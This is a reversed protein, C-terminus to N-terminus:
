LEQNPNRRQALRENASTALEAALATVHIAHTIAGFTREGVPTTNIHAALEFADAQAALVPDSEDPYPTRLTNGMPKPIGTM